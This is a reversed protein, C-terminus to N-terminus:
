SSRPCLDDRWLARWFSAAPPFQSRIHGLIRLHVFTRHYRANNVTSAPLTEPPLHFALNVWPWCNLLLGKSSTYSSKDEVRWERM